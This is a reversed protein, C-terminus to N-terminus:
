AFSQTVCPLMGYFCAALGSVCQCGLVMLMTTSLPQWTVDGSSTTSPQEHTACKEPISLLQRINCQEVIGDSRCDSDCLGLQLHDIGINGSCLQTQRALKRDTLPETAQIGELATPSPSSSMPRTLASLLIPQSGDSM